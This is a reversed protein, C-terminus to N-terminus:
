KIKIKFQKSLKAFISQFVGDWVRATKQRFLKASNYWPTKEGKNLWRWDPIKQLPVWVELDLAACLHAVSTDSSITLDLQKVLSATKNFDTLKDTLDIIDDEYGYKKIDEKEVGVQLSYVNIKPHKILPELFKLDFVKGDYSEGTVSASWCIGIDIMGKTKKIKLDEDDQAKLYPYGCDIQKAESIKYLYPLSLMSIQYDFDPTKEDGRAYFYDVNEISNEFLTKLEDRCQLIVECGYRQKISSVFRAFMISDGFGQESHVLLKRNKIDQTGDFRSKTYIEKYKIIHSIMEDKKFRWEYQEFGDLFNEISLYVTALDFHANVFDPKLEIAKKYNQIAKQTQGLQKYSTAVNSYANCGKPDLKISKEHMKIAKKYEYLKNYVNGLNTYAGAHKPSKQIATELAKIAEDYKKAKNLAAGMNSYVEIFNPDIDLAVQFIKASQEYMKINYFLIALNNIAKTYKPNLKIAMKYAQIAKSYQKQKEFQLAINYFYRFDKKSNQKNKMPHFSTDEVKKLGKIVFKNDNHVCLMNVSVINGFINKKNKKFNNPNFLPPLHWYLEYGYSQILEILEKSKEQRDNEVYIMPKFKSILNKAGKLVDIEMGEVDIKIFRLRNIKNVLNDLKSQKVPTGNLQKELSVGGFNNQKKFNLDPVKIYKEENGLAEQFTYVNTISNLAMNACLTQFVIRQPEYALVVGKNGVLKSFIQTHTGINAGVEIVTDNSKCIQKFVEAELQSFEGYYKLSKGIYIDNKNYLCYGNRGRILENFNNM